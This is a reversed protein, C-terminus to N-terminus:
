QERPEDTEDAKKDKAKSPAPSTWEVLPALLKDALEQTAPKNRQVSGLVSIVYRRISDLLTDRKERVQPSEPPAKAKTAGTVEGYLSHVIRAHALIPGAGIANFKAELGEEDIAKLKADVVAWEKIPRYTLFGLGADFLRQRLERGIVGEPIEDALSEWVACIDHLARLAKDERRDIVRLTPKPAPPGGLIAVLAGRDSKVIDLAAQVAEPLVLSKNSDDLTVAELSAALSDAEHADLRPLNIINSPDLSRTM